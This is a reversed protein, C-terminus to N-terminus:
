PKPRVKKEEKEKKKEVVPKEAKQSESQSFKTKPEDKDEVLTEAKNAFKKPIGAEEDLCNDIEEAEEKQEGVRKITKM